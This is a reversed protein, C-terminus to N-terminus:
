VRFRQVEISLEEAQSALAVIAQDLERVSADQDSCVDHILQVAQLVEESSRTQMQQAHSVQSVMENIEEIAQIVQRSGQSQETSSRHVQETLANMRRTGDRIERSGTAQDDSARMIQKANSAVRVMAGTIGKTQQAQNQAQLAIQQVMQVTSQTQELIKAFHEDAQRGLKIGQQVNDIGRGGAEIARQSEEQIKGILDAIEVTSMRTREALNKIENAVVAFGKGHEGAQSAIISANLALLNTQDAVGKIVGIINGIESTTDNLSTIVDFGTQTASSIKDIGNLTARLM